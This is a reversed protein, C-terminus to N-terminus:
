STPGLKMAGGGELFTIRQVGEFALVSYNTLQQIHRSHIRSHKEKKLNM